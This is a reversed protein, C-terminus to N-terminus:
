GHLWQTPTAFALGLRDARAVVADLAPAIHPHVDHLLVIDGGALPEDEFWRRIPEAAGRAFDKPDRNWLVVTQGLAWMGVLKGPTLKGYPPRYLHPRWGLLRELLGSTKRAESVLALASTEPPPTHAWSHHGIEHGEEAIRAVLDPHAEAKRGIVFFTARVGLDRLRDLVAPTHEPDPGDDFTLAVSRSTAPGSTMFLRRPLARAMGRRVLQRLPSPRAERASDM